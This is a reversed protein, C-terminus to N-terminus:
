LSVAPVMTNTEPEAGTPESLQGRHGTQGTGDHSDDAFATQSIESGKWDFEHAGSGKGSNEQKINYPVGFAYRYLAM